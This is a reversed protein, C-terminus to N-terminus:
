IDLLMKINSSKILSINLCKLTFNIRYEQMQGLEPFAPVFLSISLACVISIAPVSICIKTTKNKNAL